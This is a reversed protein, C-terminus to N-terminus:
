CDHWVNEVEPPSGSGVSPKPTGGGPSLCFGLPGQAEHEGSWLVLSRRQLQSSDKICISM